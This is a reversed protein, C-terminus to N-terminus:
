WKLFRVEKYSLQSQWAIHFALSAMHPPYVSLSLSAQDAELKNLWALLSPALCTISFSDQINVWDLPVGAAVQCFCM